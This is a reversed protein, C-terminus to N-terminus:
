LKSTRRRQEDTMSALNREAQRALVTPAAAAPSPTSRPAVRRDARTFRQSGGITTTDPEEPDACKQGHYRDADALIEEVTVVSGDDLTIDHDKKAMRNRRGRVMEGLRGNPGRSAAERCIRRPGGKRAAARRRNKAGRRSLDSVSARALSCPTDRAHSRPDTTIGRRPAGREQVIGAGCSAGAAFDLHETSWVSTDVLSRVQITGAGSIFPYGFGAVVLHEHLSEGLAPIDSGCAVPFYFRAGTM